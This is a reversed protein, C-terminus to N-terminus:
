SRSQAVAPDDPSDPDAGLVRWPDAQPHCPPRRVEPDFLCQGEIDSDHGRAHGSPKHFAAQPEHYWCCLCLDRIAPNSQGADWAQRPPSLRGGHHDCTTNGLGARLDESTAHYTQHHRSRLGSGSLIRGPSLGHCRWATEATPEGPHGRLRDGSCISPCSSVGSRTPLARHIVGDHGREPRRGAHGPRVWRCRGAAWHGVGRGTRGTVAVRGDATSM